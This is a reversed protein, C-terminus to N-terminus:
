KRLVHMEKQQIQRVFHLDLDLCIMFHDSLATQDMLCSQIITDTDKVIVLDLTHGLRHTPGQVLQKYNLSTLLSNFSRVESKSRCDMHFNFDGMVVLRNPLLDACSLSEEFEELFTTYSASPPRYIVLFNVQATCFLAFEFSSAEPLTESINQLKLNSRHIAAIGGGRSDTNRPVSLVSFGPPCIEGLVVSDGDRLWTESIFAIDVNKELIQDCTLNTKNCISQANWLFTKLSTRRQPTSQLSRPQTASCVGDKRKRQGGRTGRRTCPKKNIGLERIQTWANPPLKLDCNLELFDSRTIGMTNSNVLVLPHISGSSWSCSLLLIILALCLSFTRSRVWLKEISHKHMAYTYLISAM